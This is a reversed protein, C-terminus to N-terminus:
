FNINCATTELTSQKILMHTVDKKNECRHFIKWKCVEYWVQPPPTGGGWATRFFKTPQHPPYLNGFFMSKESNEAYVQCTKINKLM